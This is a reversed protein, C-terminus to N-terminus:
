YGLMDMLTSMSGALPAGTGAAARVAELNNKELDSSQLLRAFSQSTEVRAETIRGMLMEIQVKRPSKDQIAYLVLANLEDQDLTGLMADIQDVSTLAVLQDYSVPKPVSFSPASASATPKMLYTGLLECVKDTFPTKGTYAQAVEVLASTAAGNVDTGAEGLLQRLADDGSGVMMDNLKHITRPVAFQRMEEGLMEAAEDESYGDNDPDNPDVDESPEFKHHSVILGPNETLVQRIVPHLREGMLEMFTDADPEVHVMVFRSVSAEDLTQVNGKDNGAIVVRLNEPLKRAGITRATPISLAASTIGSDASRNFEDLFLLPTQEPHAEAHAIARSIMVHPFFHQEYATKAQNPLLRPASLDGRDAIENVQVTFCETGLKEALANLYESKGIGAQGILALPHNNTIAQIAVVDLVPGFKM